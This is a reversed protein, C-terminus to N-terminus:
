IIFLCLVVTFEIIGELLAHKKSLKNKSFELDSLLNKHGHIWFPCFFHLFYICFTIVDWCLTHSGSCTILLIVHMDGVSFKVLILYFLSPLTPLMKNIVRYLIHSESCGPAGGALHM